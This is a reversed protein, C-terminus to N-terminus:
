FVVLKHEEFANINDSTHGGNQKRRIADNDLFLTLFQLAFSSLSM